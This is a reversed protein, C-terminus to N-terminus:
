GNEDEDKVLRWYQWTGVVFFGVMAPQVLEKDVPESEFFILDGANTVFPHDTEEFEEYCDDALAVVYKSM